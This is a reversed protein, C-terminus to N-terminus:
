GLFNRWSTGRIRTYGSVIGVRWLLPFRFVLQYSNNLYLMQGIELSLTSTLVNESCCKVKCYQERQVCLVIKM